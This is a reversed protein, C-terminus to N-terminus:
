FRAAGLAGLLGWGGLEGGIMDAMATCLAVNFGSHISERM